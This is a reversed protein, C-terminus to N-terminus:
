HSGGHAQLEKVLRHLTVLHQELGNLTPRSPKSACCAQRWTSQLDIGVSACTAYCSSRRNRSPLSSVASVRSASKAEAFAAALTTKATGATGTMCCAAARTFAACALCRM